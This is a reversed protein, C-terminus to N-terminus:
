RGGRQLFAATRRSNSFTSRPWGQEGATDNFSVWLAVTFDGTGFNLAPDHPVDVFDGDGDLLFGKDAVGPGFTTDGHLVAARGGVIDAAM